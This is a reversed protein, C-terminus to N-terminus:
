SSRRKPQQGPLWQYGQAWLERAKQEQAENWERVEEPTPGIAFLHVFGEREKSKLHDSFWGM